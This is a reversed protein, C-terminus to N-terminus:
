FSEKPGFIEKAFRIGTNAVPVGAYISIHLFMEAIDKPSAGTNRSARLHMKTEEEHGLTALVALTLLSRTRRDLHPRSWIAGWATRTIHAQFDADFDTTAAIARDVHADGLVQRRTVFGTTLVDQPPPAFFAAIAQTVAEPREVPAMHAADPIKVLKAGPIAAALAEAAEPPTPIDQDGVLVLTPATIKLAGEGLPLAAIAEAAGAYGEPNTALLMAHLGRARPTDANPPTVWRALVADVVSAMGHARVEAARAHWPEPPPIARATDCLILSAVRSPNQLAVAQAILGGISLGALHFREIGLADMVAVADEAMGGITYPGPAVSTLGHGRLDMRVVRFGSAFTEAQADWVHLNTGLSHLLLLAPAGPPGALQVHVTLGKIDIFM